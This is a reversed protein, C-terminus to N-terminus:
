TPCTNGHYPVNEPQLQLVTGGSISHLYSYESYAVKDQEHRHLSMAMKCLFRVLATTYILVLIDSYSITSPQCTTTMYNLAPHPDLM